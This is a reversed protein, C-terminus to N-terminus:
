WPLSLLFDEQVLKGWGMGLRGSPLPASQGKTLTPLVLCHHEAIFVEPNLVKPDSLCPDLDRLEAM